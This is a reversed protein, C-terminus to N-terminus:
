SWTWPSRSPLLLTAPHGGRWWRWWRGHGAGIGPHRARPPMGCGRVRAGAKMPNGLECLVVHSGNEKRPNCSLKEQGQLTPVRPSTVCPGGWAGAVRPVCMSWPCPSCRLGLCGRAGMVMPCGCSPSSWWPCPSLGGGRVGGRWAGVPISSRAAQYHTGPPLQVRLEAEFAGEGANSANVRLRLAAEAGILLSRSPSPPSVHPCPEAGQPAGPVRQRGAPCERTPPWTSTPSASTTTM